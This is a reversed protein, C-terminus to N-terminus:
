RGVEQFTALAEAAAYLDEVTIEREGIRHDVVGMIPGDKPRQPGGIRYYDALAAFPKLAEVLREVAPHTPHAAVRCARLAAIIAAKEAIYGNADLSACRRVAEEADAPYEFVGRLHAALQLMAPRSPADYRELAHIASRLLAPIDADAVAEVPASPAPELAKAVRQAMGRAEQQVVMAATVGGDAVVADFDLTSIDTLWDRVIRLGQLKLADM